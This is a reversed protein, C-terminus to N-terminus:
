ADQDNSEYENSESGNSKYLRCGACPGVPNVACRLLESQANFQCTVDGLVWRGNIQSREAPFYECQVFLSIQRLHYRGGQFQYRHRRELVTYPKGAVDLCAGPQPTWDLQIQGLSRRPHALIVETPLSPADMGIGTRPHNSSVRRHVIGRITTYMTLNQQPKKLLTEVRSLGSNLLERLCGIAEIAPHSAIAGACKGKNTRDM